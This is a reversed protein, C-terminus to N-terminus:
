RVMEVRMLVKEKSIFFIFNMQTLLLQKCQHGTSFWPGNSSGLPLLFVIVGLNTKSSQLLM